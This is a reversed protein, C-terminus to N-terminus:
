AAALWLGTTGIERLTNDRTGGGVSSFALDFAINAKTPAMAPDTM